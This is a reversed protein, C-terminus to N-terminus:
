HLIKITKSVKHIIGENDKISEKRVEKRLKELKQKLAFSRAFFDMEAKIDYREPNQKSCTLTFVDSTGDKTIEWETKATNNVTLTGTFGNEQFWWLSYLSSDSLEKKSKITINPCNTKAFEENPNSSNISHFLKRYANKFITFTM